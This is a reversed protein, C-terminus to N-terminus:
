FKNAAVQEQFHACSVQNHLQKRLLEARGLVEDQACTYIRQSSVFKPISHPQSVPHQPVPIHSAAPHSAPHHLCIINYCGSTLRPTRVGPSKHLSTVCSTKLTSLRNKPASNFKLGMEQVHGQAPSSWAPHSGKEELCTSSCLSGAEPHPSADGGGGWRQRM